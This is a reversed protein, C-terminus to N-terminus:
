VLVDSAARSAGHVRTWAHLFPELRLQSESQPGFQTPEISFGVNGSRDPLTILLDPVVKFKTM